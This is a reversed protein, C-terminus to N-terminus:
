IVKGALKLQLSTQWSELVPMHAKVWPLSPLTEPFLYINLLLAWVTDLLLFFLISAETIKM